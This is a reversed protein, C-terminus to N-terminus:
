ASSPTPIFFGLVCSILRSPVQSGLTARTTGVAQPSPTGLCAALSGLGRRDFIDIRSECFNRPALTDFQLLLVIVGQLARVADASLTLDLSAAQWM